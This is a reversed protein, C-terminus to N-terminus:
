INATENYDGCIYNRNENLILLNQFVMFPLKKDSTKPPMRILTNESDLSIVQNSSTYGINTQAKKKPKIVAETQSIIFDLSFGDNM